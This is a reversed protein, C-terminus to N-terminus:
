PVGLSDGHTGEKKMQNIMESVVQVINKGNQYESINEEEVMTTKEAEFKEIAKM